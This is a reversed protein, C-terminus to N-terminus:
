LESFPVYLCFTSWDNSDAACAHSSVMLPLLFRQINESSAETGTPGCMITLADYVMLQNFGRRALMDVVGSFNGPGDGTPWDLNPAEGGHCEFGSMIYWGTGMWPKAERVGTHKDASPKILAMSRTAHDVVVAEQAPALPVRVFRRTKNVVLNGATNHLQVSLQIVDDIQAPLSSLPFHLVNDPASLQSSDTLQLQFGPGKPSGLVTATAELSGARAHELLQSAIRIILKGTSEFTYPRRGIAFSVLPFYEFNVSANIDFTVGGDMSVAVKAPGGTPVVPLLCHIKNPSLVQAPVQITRHPHDSSFGRNFGEFTDISSVNCKAPAGVVFGSGFVTVLRGVASSSADGDLAVRQHSMSKVSVAPAGSKLLRAAVGPHEAAALLLEHEIISRSLAGVAHRLLKNRHEYSLRQSEQEEAAPDDSIALHNTSSDGLMMMMALLTTTAGSLVPVMM